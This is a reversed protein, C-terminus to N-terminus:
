FTKWMYIDYTEIRVDWLEMSEDILSQLCVDIKNKLNKHDPIVCTLYMFPTTMCM